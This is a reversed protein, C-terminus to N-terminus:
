GAPFEGELNLHGLAGKEPLQHRGARTSYLCAGDITIHDRSDDVLDAAKGDARERSAWEAKEAVRRAARIDQGAPERQLIGWAIIGNLRM